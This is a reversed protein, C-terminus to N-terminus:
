LICIFRLSVLARQNGYGFSRALFLKDRDSSWESINKKSYLPHVCRVVSQALPVHKAELKLLKMWCKVNRTLQRDIDIYSQPLELYM